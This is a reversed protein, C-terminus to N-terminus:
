SDRFAALPTSVASLPIGRFNDQGLSLNRLGVIDGRDNIGTVATGVSNPADIQTFTGNSYTFGHTTSQDGYVGAVVGSTNVAYAVTYVSGPYDITTYVGDKYLYAHPGTNNILYIGVVDGANNIASAQSEQAGPFALTTYIGKKLLFGFIAPSEQGIPCSTYGTGTCYGGVIDGRDNIGNATTTTSPLPYDIDTLKGDEYSFGHVGAQMNCGAPCYGGVAAGHSNIGEVHSTISKRPDVSIFNKGTQIYGLNQSPASYYGVIQGKGIGLPITATARPYNGASTFRYLPATAQAMGIIFLVVVAATFGRARM